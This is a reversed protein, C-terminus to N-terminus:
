PWAGVLRASADFKRVCSSLKKDQLSSDISDGSRIFPSVPMANLVFISANPGAAIRMMTSGQEGWSASVEPVFGSDLIAVFSQVYDSGAGDTAESLLAKLSSFRGGVNGCIALKSSSIVTMDQIVGTSSVWTRASRPWGELPWNSLFQRQSSAFPITFQGPLGEVDLTGQYSGSIYISGDDAYAISKISCTSVQDNSGLHLMNKIAGDGKLQIVCSHADFPFGPSKGNLDATEPAVSSAFYDGAVAIGGSYLCLDNLSLPLQQGWIYNGDATFKAAFSSVLGNVGQGGVAHHIDIGPGPDFDCAGEFYGGVVINDKSDVEVLVLGDWGNGGWTKSWILLGNSDFKVLLCDSTLRMATSAVYMNGNSDIALGTRRTDDRGYAITRAQRMHDNLEVDQIMWQMEDVRRPDEPLATMLIKVNGADNVVFDQALFRENGGRIVSNHCGSILGAFASIFLLEYTLNM